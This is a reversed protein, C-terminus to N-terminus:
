HWVVSLHEVALVVLWVSGGITALIGIAAFIMIKGVPLYRFASGDM